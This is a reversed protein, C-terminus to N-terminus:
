ISGRPTRVKFRELNLTAKCGEFCAEVWPRRRYARLIRPSSVEPDLCLVYEPASEGPRQFITVTVFDFTRSYLSLRVYPWDPMQPSRKWHWDTRPLLPEANGQFPLGQVTGEFVFSTKGGVIPILDRQYLRWRSESDAFWADAVLYPGKLSLGDVRLANDLNIRMKEALQIANLGPRGSGKPDPQRLAFDMPLCRFDEGVLAYLIVGEIRHAPRDLLSRYVLDALGLMQGVKLLTTTDWVFTIRYRRRQAPSACPNHYRWLVQRLRRRM